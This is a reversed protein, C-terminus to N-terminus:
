KIAVIIVNQGKTGTVKSEHPVGRGIFTADGRTWTTKAPKGDIALSTEIPGLAIVVQDYDHKTGAPESFKPGLTVLYAAGYPGDALPKIETNPRETPLAATGPTPSRFEVLIADVDSTGTNSPKHTGAPTYTATDAKGEIEQTKGDPTEFRTKGGTLFVAISDPHQHM